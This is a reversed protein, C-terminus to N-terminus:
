FQFYIFAESFGSNVLLLFLMLGYFVYEIKKIYIMPNKDKLLYILHYIIVPLSFLFVYTLNGVDGRKDINIPNQNNFIMGLYTIVDTFTTLKFLLWAISVFVFVTIGKFIKYIRNNILSKTSNGLLREVALAIGHFSGWVAYRWEAGHWLGGLFMVIFLNLYTRLQGKKNGGLPFYLYEMLFSSLSIHWRKWFEKFSTSIYPFNFNDKFDYCFLKAFGIAILSYGAFDAFIQFSYGFLLTILSLTSQKTFHPANISETFHNLNDAVVMKLFYGLTLIKFVEVWKIDSFKKVGIQPIFDHAKVIPGSILQPFFGKFFLIQKAHKVFSEPVLLKNSTYKQKYVDVILSIGQFTFFSIGIPLPLTIFFEGFSGPTVSFFSKAILPSYKFFLLISLNLIVGSYAYFKQREVKGYVIFYSSVVNISVSFLLLLVLIPQYYAYFLLSSVILLPIQLKYLPPLYYLIFTISVLELFILSTFLM